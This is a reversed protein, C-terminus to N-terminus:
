EVDNDNLTAAICDSFVASPLMDEDIISISVINNAWVMNETDLAPHSLCM